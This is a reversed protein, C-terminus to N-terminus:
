HSLDGRSPGGWPQKLTRMVHSSAEWLTVAGLFSAIDGPGLSGAAALSSYCCANAMRGLTRNCATEGLLQEASSWNPSAVMFSPMVRWPLNEGFMLPWPVPGLPCFGPDLFWPISIPISQNIGVALSRSPFKHKKDMGPHVRCRPLNQKGVPSVEM